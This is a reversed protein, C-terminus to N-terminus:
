DAQFFYIKESYSPLCKCCVKHFLFAGVFPVLAYVILVNLLPNSVAQQVAQNYAEIPGIFGVIGFGGSFPTGTINFVYAMVGCLIGNLLIPVYMVPHRFLNPIMMKMAALFIALTIGAKNRALLSGVVLVATTATVGLNAAGSGLGSLGIILSVAVTSIPSVIMVAFSIAILVSMLLPQLQTFYSIIAGISLTIQAVYPLALLSLFGVGGAVVIPQLILTLSGFRDKLKLTFWVALGTFILVNLLDGVGKMVFGADTHKLVGSSIFATIGITAVKLPNLNFAIGVLVGMIFSLSGQMILLGDIFTNVFPYHKIPALISGLIANPALAIVVALAMGFLLKNLFSSLTVAEASAAPKTTNTM